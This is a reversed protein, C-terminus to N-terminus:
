QLIAGLVCIKEYTRSDGMVEVTKTPLYMIFLKGFKIMYAM